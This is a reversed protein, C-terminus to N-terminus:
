EADDKEGSGKGSFRAGAIALDFQPGVASNIIKGATDYRLTTPKETVDQFILQFRPTENLIEMLTEDM